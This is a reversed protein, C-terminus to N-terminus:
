RVPLTEDQKRAVRNLSIRTFVNMVDHERFANRVAPPRPPRKSAVANNPGIGALSMLVAALPQAEPVLYYLLKRDRQM